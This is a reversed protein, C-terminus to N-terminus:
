CCQGFKKSDTDDKKTHLIRQGGTIQGVTPGQKEKIEKALHYFVEKVNINNKASTEFFSMKYEDALAKGKAPDIKKAPSDCKNGILVKVVAPSAHAEIQKLWNKVNM